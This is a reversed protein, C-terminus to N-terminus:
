ERRALRNESVAVDPFQRRHSEFVVVAQRADNLVESRDPLGDFLAVHESVSLGHVEYFKTQGPLSKIDSPIPPPDCDCFVLWFTSELPLVDFVSVGNWVASCLGNNVMTDFMIEFGM